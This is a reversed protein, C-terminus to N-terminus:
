DTGVVVFNEDLQVDIERGNDLRVEVEYYSEEDEIETDTVKGQGIYELAVASAKTLAPGTIPQDPKENADDADQIENNGLMNVASAKAMVQSTSVAGGILILSLIFLSLIKKMYNTKRTLSKLLLLGDVKIEAESV